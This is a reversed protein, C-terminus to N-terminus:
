FFLVGIANMGPFHNIKSAKMDLVKQNTVSKDQWIVDCDIEKGGDAPDECLIWTKAIGSFESFFYTNNFRSQEKFIIICIFLM